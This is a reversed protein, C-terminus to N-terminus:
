LGCRIIFPLVISCIQRIAQLYHSKSRSHSFVESACKSNHSNSRSRLFVELVCWCWLVLTLVGWIYGVINLFTGLRPHLFCRPFGIDNQFEQASACAHRLILFETFVRRLSSSLVGWSPFIINQAHICSWRKQTYTSHLSMDAELYFMLIKWPAHISFGGWYECWLSM